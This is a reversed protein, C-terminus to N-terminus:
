GEPEPRQPLPPKVEYVMGDAGPFKTGSRAREVVQSYHIRPQPVAALLKAAADCADSLPDGEWDRRMTDRFQKEIEIISALAERMALANGSPAFSLGQPNCYPCKLANHHNTLDTNGSSRFALIAEASRAATQRSWHATHFGLRRRGLQEIDLPHCDTDSCITNWADLMAATIIAEIGERENGAKDPHPAPSASAPAAISVADLCTRACRRWQDKIVNPQAEWNFEGLSALIGIAGADIMEDTIAPQGVGPEATAPSAARLATIALRADDRVLRYGEAVAMGREIRNALAAMDPTHDRSINPM